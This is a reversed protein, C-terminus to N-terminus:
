ASAGVAAASLKADVNEAATIPPYRKGGRGELCKASPLCDVLTSPHPGTFYAISLRSPLLTGGGGAAAATSYPSSRVRHMTARWRDNTWRAMLDGINVTLTGPPSAVARWGGAEDRCGGGGGHQEKIELGGAGGQDGHPEEERALITFGDYDTHAGDTPPTLCHAASM